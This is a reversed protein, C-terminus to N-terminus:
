QEESKSSSRPSSPTESAELDTWGEPFGMLWEVWTPNLSGGVHNPLTDKPHGKREQRGNGSEGKYDRTTPSPYMTRAVVSELNPFKDNVRNQINEAAMASCSRPTPWLEGARAMYHLDGTGARDGSREGGGSPTTPTPWMGTQPYTRVFVPLSRGPMSEAGANYDVKTNDRMQTDPTPLLGSEIEDTRPMSPALQFLLHSPKIGSAKWTLFAASSAWRSTLLAESMRALSGNLGYSKLLPLWRRGSIATMKQAESSGRSVGPSVPSDAASSTSEELDMQLASEEAMRVATGLSLHLEGLNPNEKKKKANREV